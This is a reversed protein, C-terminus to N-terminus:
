TVCSIGTKSAIMVGMASSSDGMEEDKEVEAAENDAIGSNHIGSGQPYRQGMQFINSPM